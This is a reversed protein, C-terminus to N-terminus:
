EHTAVGFFLAGVSPHPITHAAGYRCAFKRTEPGFHKVAVMEVIRRM